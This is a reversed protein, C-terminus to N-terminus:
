QAMHHGSFTLKRKTEMYNDVREVVTRLCSFVKSMDRQEFVEASKLITDRSSTLKLNLNASVDGVYKSDNALKIIEGVSILM